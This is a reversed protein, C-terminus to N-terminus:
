KTAVPVLSWDYVSLVKTVAANIETKDLQFNESSGSQGKSPASPEGHISAVAAAAVSAATTANLPVTSSRVLGGTSSLM